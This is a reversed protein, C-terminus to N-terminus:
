LNSHHVASELSLIKYLFFIACTFTLLCITFEVVASIKGIKTRNTQVSQVTDPENLLRKIFILADCTSLFSVAQRESDSSLCVFAREHLAHDSM